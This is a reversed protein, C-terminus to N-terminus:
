HHYGYKDAIDKLVRFLRNLDMVRKRDEADMDLNLTNFHIIEQEMADQIFVLSCPFGDNMAEVEDDWKTNLKSEAYHLFIVANPAQMQSRLQVLKPILVKPTM